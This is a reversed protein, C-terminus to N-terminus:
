LLGRIETQLESATPLDPTPRWGPELRELIALARAFDARAAEPAADLAGLGEFYLLEAMLWLRAQDVQGAPALWMMLSQVDLSRAIGLDLGAQQALDSVEASVKQRDTERRLIRNRLVILGQAFQEILRLLYDQRYMRANQCARANCTCGNTYVTVRM